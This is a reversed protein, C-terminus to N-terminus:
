LCATDNVGYGSALAGHDLKTDGLAAFEGTRQRRGCRAVSMALKLFVRLAAQHQVRPVTASFPYSERSATKRPLRSPALEHEASFRTSASMILTTWTTVSRRSCVGLSGQTVEPLGDVHAVM